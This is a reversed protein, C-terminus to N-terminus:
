TGWNVPKATGCVAVAFRSPRCDSSREAEVGRVEAVKCVLADEGNSLRSAGLLTAADKDSVNSPLLDSAVVRINKNSM